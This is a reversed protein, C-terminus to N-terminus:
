FLLKTWAIKLNNRQLYISAWKGARLAKNIRVELISHCEHCADTIACNLWDCNKNNDRTSQSGFTLWVIQSRCSHFLFLILRMTCAPWYSCKSASWSKLVQIETPKWEMISSNASITTINEAIIIHARSVISAKMVAPWHDLADGVLSM